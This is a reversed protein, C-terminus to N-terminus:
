ILKNIFKKLKENLNSLENNNLRKSSKNITSIIKYYEEEVNKREKEEKDKLMKNKKEEAEKKLKGEEQRTLQVKAM